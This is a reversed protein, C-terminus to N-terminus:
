ASAGMALVDHDARIVDFDTDHGPRIEVHAFRSEEHGTIM